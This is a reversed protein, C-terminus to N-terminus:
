AVPIGGTGRAILRDLNLSAQNQVNEGEEKIKKQDMSLLGGIRERFWDDTFLNPADKRLQVLVVIQASVDLIEPTQWEVAVADFAPPVELESEVTFVQQVEATLEILRRIEATNERQFRIVKGILGIELQRLADGSVNGQATIGYIPTQTAQSIEKVLMEIQSTYQTIDTGEFIGVEVAELFKIQAEDLEIKVNGDKDKLAMNLVAGPTIGNVDLEMGKAWIIRFASFESAMIMSYLTRNVADQLPIAPRLESEGFATYNDKQNVFHVLPIKKLPNKRVNTPEVGEIEIGPDQFVPELGSSGETGKWFSVQNPQFVILKMTVTTNNITDGTLDENDAESWIKCAWIAQGDQGFIAVMGSFGDYAPEAVWLGTLFDILIYSDADRIAGRYLEGQLSEWDTLLLLDNVWENASDNETTISSVHLRGAMKDVVIRMYNDNFENLEANDEALRLMAKMQDTLNADHNGREYRRYKAVRAGRTRIATKWSNLADISQALVPNTEELADVILASNDSTPVARRSTTDTYPM